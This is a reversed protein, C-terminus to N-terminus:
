KHGLVTLLVPSSEQLFFRYIRMRLIDYDIAITVVWESLMRVTFSNYLSSTKPRHTTASCNDRRNVSDATGLVAGSVGGRSHDGPRHDAITIVKV